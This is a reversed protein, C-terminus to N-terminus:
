TARRAYLASAHPDGNPDTYCHTRAHSNGDTGGNSHRNTFSYSDPHAHAGQHADGDAGTNSHSYADRNGNRRCGRCRCASAHSCCHAGGAHGHRHTRDPQVCGACGGDREM